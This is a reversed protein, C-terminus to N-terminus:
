DNNHFVKKTMKFYTKGSSEILFGLKCKKNCISGVSKKNILIEGEIRNNKIIRKKDVLIKYKQVGDDIIVFIEYPKGKLNTLNSIFKVKFANANQNINVIKFPTRIENDFNIENYIKFTNKTFQKNLSPSYINENIARNVVGKLLHKCQVGLIYNDFETNLKVQQNKMRSLSNSARTVFLMSVLIIFIYKIPTKSNYSSWCFVLYSCALFLSTYLQYRDTLPALLNQYGRSISGSAFILGIFLIFSFLLSNEKVRKFERITLALMLGLLMIGVPILISPETTVGKLFSSLFVFPSLIINLLNEDLKESLSPKDRVITLDHFYYLIALLGTAICILIRKVSEKKLILVVLGCIFTFMGVGFSYTALVAFTLGLIYYKRGNKSLFFLSHLVFFLTLSIVIGQLAWNNILNLPIFLILCLILTDLVSTSKIKTIITILSTTFILNALIIIHVFNISGTLKLLGLLLVRFTVMRHENTQHRFLYSVQNLYGDQDFLNSFFGLIRGSDDIIPINEIFFLPTINYIVAFFFIIVYKIINNKEKM